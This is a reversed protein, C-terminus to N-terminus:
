VSEGEGAILVFWLFRDHCVGLLSHTRHWTGYIKRDMIGEGAQMNAEDNLRYGGIAGTYFLFFSIVFPFDSCRSWTITILLCPQLM